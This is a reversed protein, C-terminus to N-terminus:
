ISRANQAVLRGQSATHTHGSHPVHLVGVWATWAAHEVRALLRRPDVHVAQIDSRQLKYPKKKTDFGIPMDLDIWFEVGLHHQQHGSCLRLINGRCAVGQETRAEQIGIFNLQFERMQRQLFHLKGAHGEPHRSLSQVNATALSIALKIHKHQVTRIPQDAEKRLQAPMDPPPIESGGNKWLPMGWRPGAFILWLHPIISHWRQMSIRQRPHHFSQAAERKAALDVFENFILGTHSRVHHWHLHDKPMAAELAQILGRQIRFSRDAVTSGTEGFAQSGTVASDICFITEISVNQSLRWLAAWILASREAMDAGIKTIGDYHTSREDYRVVQATWGLPQFEHCGERINEGIVLFAWADPKGLEDARAPPLRKMESSSTGDTFILIRDFTELAPLPATSNSAEFFQKMHEPMDFCTFDRCLMDNGSHFLDHLDQRHISTQLTCPGQLEQVQSPDFLPGGGSKRYQFPPPWVGPRKKPKDLQQPEQHSFVIKRWSPRVNETTIIVARPYDLKCLFALMEQDTMDKAQTHAFVAIDEHTEVRCFLYHSLQSDCANAPYCAFAPQPWCDIVDVNHGWAQLEASVSTSTAIGAIEIVSPICGTHQLDLIQVASPEDLWATDDAEYERPGHTHAVQGRTQRERNKHTIQNLQLLVTGEQRAPRHYICFSFAQGSSAAFPRGPLLQYEGYWVQCEATRPEQFCQQYVGIGQALHEVWLHEHTTVANQLRVRQQEAHGEFVTLLNTVLQPHPAQILIVHAEVEHHTREPHPLVLHFELALSEIRFEQWPRVLQSEWQTYDDDLRVSRPDTCHLRGNNHDVFWVAVLLSRDEQEWPRACQNWLHHLDQIFENMASIIPRGPQFIPESPDLRTESSTDGERRWRTSQRQMFYTTDTESANWVEPGTTEIDQLIVIFSIGHHTAIQRGEQLQQEGHWTMCQLDSVFRYCRSVQGIAEVIDFKGAISPLFLAVHTFHDRPNRTDIQTIIAARQNEPYRRVLMVHPLVEPQMRTTPPQPFVLYFNVPIGEDLRDRWAMLFQHQWHQFDSTLRVTRYEHCVSFEPEHLMWTNVYLVQGEEEVEVAGHEELQEFLNFIYEPQEDLGPRPVFGGPLDPTHRQVITTYIESPDEQYHDTPGKGTANIRCELQKSLTWPPRPLPPMTTLKHQLLAIEDDDPRLPVLPHDIITDFWGLQFLAHRDHLEQQSIGQHCASAVCRTGIHCVQEHGPPVAVRVFDGHTLEIPRASYRSMIADNVWLICSQQMERCYEALGLHQLLSLRGIHRPLRVVRRVVEPQMEPAAAHFEVDLLVIQFTSGPSIDGHRHGILPEVGAAVLDQPGHRVHHLYFLDQRRIGLEQAAETHMSEYDNWDVRMPVAQFDIAFLLTAFWDPRMASHHDSDTASIEDDSQAPFDDREELDEEPDIGINPNQMINPHVPEHPGFGHLRHHGPTAMFSIEDSLPSKLPQFIDAHQIPIEIIHQWYQLHWDQEHGVYLEVTDDFCVHHKGASKTVPCRQFSTEDFSLGLMQSVEFALDLGHISARWENLFNGEDIISHTWQREPYEAQVFCHAHGLCVEQRHDIQRAQSFAALCCLWSWANSHLGRGRQGATAEQVSTSRCGRRITETQLQGIHDAHITDRGPDRRVIGDQRPKRRGDWRLGRGGRGSHKCRAQRQGRQGCRVEIQGRTCAGKSRFSAERTRPREHCLRRCILAMKKCVRRYLQVLVSSAQDNSAPSSAPNEEEKRIQRVGAECEQSFSLSASTRPDEQDQRDGDPSRRSSRHRVERISSSAGSAIDGRSHHEYEGNAGIAISIINHIAMTSGIDANWLERQAAKEESDKATEEAIRSTQVSLCKREKQTVPGLVGLRGTAAVAEKVQIQCPRQTALENGETWTCLPHRCVQGMTLLMLRLLHGAAQQPAQVVRMEMANSQDRDNSSYHAQDSVPRSFSSGSSAGATVCTAAHFAGCHWAQPSALGVPSEGTTPATQAQTDTYHKDGFIVLIYVLFVYIHM